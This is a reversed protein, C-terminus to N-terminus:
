FGFEGGTIRKMLFNGAFILILVCTALAAATDYYGADQLEYVAVGITRTEPGFLLASVTLERLMPMFALFWAAILGPKVLPVVIDRFTRGWGAGSIRAAEELSMHVQELSAGVSKVAFAMYRAIYAVLLIWITNYLNIGFKGSFALIMAIALVTGPISYPLTSLFELIRRGTLKTRVIIYAILSGIVTLLTAATFSLKISNWISSRTLDYELLIFKYNALTFNEWAIDVGYAKLLSILVVCLLPALMTAFSFLVCGLLFPIRYKGLSVVNPRMSKGAIITFQKKRLYWRNAVLALASTIVLFISLSSAMQVGEFGGSYIYYFIRTTLVYVRGESGILAPIGFNSCAAIFVLLAGAAISPAVLPLTINRVVRFKGAGSSRAAEELTPDMRDLAGAVTIFIYPYFYLSMVFVVGGYTYINFPPTSSSFLAMLFKNVFGTRPSLLFGWAIAGIFPPIMYPIIFLTKFIGKLPMDTRTVAWALPCGILMTFFVTLLSISLTNMLSMYNSKVEFIKELFGITFTGAESLVSEIFILGIPFAVVLLLLLAPVGMFLHGLGIKRGKTISRLNAM